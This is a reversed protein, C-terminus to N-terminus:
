TYHFVGASRLTPGIHLERLLLPPKMPQTETNEIDLEARVVRRVAAQSAKPHRLARYGNWLGDRFQPAALGVMAEARADLGLISLDVLGYETVVIQTAAARSPTLFTQGTAPM